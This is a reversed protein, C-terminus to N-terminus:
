GLSELFNRIKTKTLYFGTLKKDDSVFAPISKIGDVRARARNTLFEVNTIEINHFERRLQALSLGALQCRPCIASHYFTVKRM